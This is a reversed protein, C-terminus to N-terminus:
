KRTVRKTLDTLSNGILIDLDDPASVKDGNPTNLKPADKKKFSGFLLDADAKLSKEDEGSLRATQEDSLGYETKIKERVSVLTQEKKYGELAESIKASLEEETFVLKGTLSKDFEVKAARKADAKAAKVVENVQAQTLKKEEQSEKVADTTVTEGETSVDNNGQKDPATEVETINEEAM